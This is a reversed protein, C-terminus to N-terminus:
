LWDCLLFESSLILAHVSWWSCSVVRDLKFVLLLTFCFLLTHAALAQVSKLVRRWSMNERMGRNWRPLASLDLFFIFISSWFSSYSRFGRIRAPLELINVDHSSFRLACFWFSVNSLRFIDWNGREPLYYFLVFSFCHIERECVCNVRRNKLWNRSTKAKM